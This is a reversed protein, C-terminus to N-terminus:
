TNHIHIDVNLKTGNSLLLNAENNDLTLTSISSTPVESIGKVTCNTSVHWSWRWSVPGIRCTTLTHKDDHNDRGSLTVFWCGNDNNMVREVVAITAHIQVPWLLLKSENWMIPNNCVMVVIKFIDDMGRSSRNCCINGKHSGNSCSDCREVFSINSCFSSTFHHVRILQVNSGGRKADQLYWRPFRNRNWDCCSSVCFVIIFVIGCSITCLFIMRFSSWTFTSTSQITGSSTSYAMPWIIAAKDLADVMTRHDAAFPTPRM